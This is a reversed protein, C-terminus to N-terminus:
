ICWGDVRRTIIQKIHPVSNQWRSFATYIILQIMSQFFWTPLSKMFHNSRITSKLKSVEQTMIKFLGAIILWLTLLYIIIGTPWMHYNLTIILDGTFCLLGYSLFCIMSRMSAFITTDFCILVILLIVIIKFKHKLSLIHKYIYQPSITINEM